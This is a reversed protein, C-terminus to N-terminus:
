SCWKAVNATILTFSVEHIFNLMLESSCEPQTDPM